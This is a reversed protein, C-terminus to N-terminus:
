QKSERVVDFDKDLLGNSLVICNTRPKNLEGEPTTFHMRKRFFLLQNGYDFPVCDNFWLFPLILAFRLGLSQIRELVETKKSFPPNSVIANVGEPVDTEFFDTDTVVVDYGYRRLADPFASHEEDNFPCWVRLPERKIRKVIQEATSPLTYYEDGRVSGVEMIKLM